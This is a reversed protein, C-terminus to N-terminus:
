VLEVVAGEKGSSPATIDEEPDGFVFVMGHALGREIGRWL